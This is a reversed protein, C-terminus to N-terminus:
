WRGHRDAYAMTELDWFELLRAYPWRERGTSGDLPQNEFLDKWAFAVRILAVDDADFELGRFDGDRWRTVMPPALRQIVDDPLQDAPYFPRLGPIAATRVFDDIGVVSLDLDPRFGTMVLEMFM